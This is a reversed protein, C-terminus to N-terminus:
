CFPASEASRKRAFFSYAGYAPEIGDAFIGDTGSVVIVRREDSGYATRLTGSPSRYRHGDVPQTTQGGLVSADFLDISEAVTM